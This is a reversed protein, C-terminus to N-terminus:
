QMGCLRLGKESASYVLLEPNDRSCGEPTILGERLMGLFVNAHIKYTGLRAKIQDIRFNPTSNDHALIAHNPGMITLYRKQQATLGNRRKYAM